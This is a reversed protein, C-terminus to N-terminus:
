EDEKEPASVFKGSDDQHLDYVAAMSIGVNTFFEAVASPGYSSICYDIVAANAILMESLPGPQNDIPVDPTPESPVDTGDSM